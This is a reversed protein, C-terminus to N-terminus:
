ADPPGDGNLPRTFAPGPPSKRPLRPQQSMVDDDGRAARREPKQADTKAPKPANPKNM